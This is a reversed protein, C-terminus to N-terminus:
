RSISESSFVLVQSKDPKTMLVGVEYSEGPALSNSRVRAIFADKDHNRVDDLVKTVNGDIVSFTKARYLVGKSDRLVVLNNTYVYSNILNYHPSLWNYRNSSVGRISAYGTIEYYYSRREVKINHMPVEQSSIDLEDDYRVISLSSTSYLIFALSPILFAIALIKLPKM